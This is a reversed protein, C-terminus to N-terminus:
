PKTKRAEIMADALAYAARSIIEERTLGTRGGFWEKLKHEPYTDRVLHCALAQGAFWDRLKMGGEPLRHSTGNTPFAPGGDDHTDTM